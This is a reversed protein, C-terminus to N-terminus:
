EEIKWFTIDPPGALFTGASSIFQQLHATKMHAGKYYDADSWQEYLLINTRDAPDVHILISVYAPEKKVEAVLKKLEALALSDKGPKAKYKVLVILDKKTQSYAATFGSATLVFLLILSLKISKMKSSKILVAKIIVKFTLLQKVLFNQQAKLLTHPLIPESHPFDM